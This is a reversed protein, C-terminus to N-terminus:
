RYGLAFTRRWLNARESGAALTRGSGTRRAAADIMGRRAYTDQEYM